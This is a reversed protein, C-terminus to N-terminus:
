LLKARRMMLLTISGLMGYFAASFLLAASLSYAGMVWGILPGAGIYLTRQALSQVSLVTARIDSEILGNLYDRMIPTFIARVLYFGFLLPLAWTAQVLGLGVYSVAVIVFFSVLARRKGLLQEYSVAWRAFLAMSLMLVAWLVGFWGLPINVAQFYPQILWVMTHTMTGGVAALVILWKIEQHGHLAYKVVRLVDRAANRYTATLVRKPESLRWAIFVLPAALVVQAGITARLSIVAILGGAISALAESVGLYAILKAEYARYENRRNAALFSEYALATDAGSIFSLAIGLAAEAAVIQWFGYSVSYAAFGATWLLAGIVLSLRRGYRDAFYGSPVEFLLVTAAFASQTLFIEVPSLGNQQFFPVIVSISLLSSALVRYAILLKINQLAQTPSM